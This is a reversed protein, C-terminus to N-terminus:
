IQTDIFVVNFQPPRFDVDLEIIILWEAMDATGIEPLLRSIIIEGTEDVSEVIHRNSGSSEVALVIVLYKDAFFDGSYKEISSGNDAPYPYYRTLEDVSEITAVAASHTGSYATRIYQVEFAIDTGPQEDSGNQEAMGAAMEFVLKVAEYVAAALTSFEARTAARTYSSEPAEPVLGDAITQNVEDTAWASPIGSASAPVASAAIIIICMAAAMFSKVKRM